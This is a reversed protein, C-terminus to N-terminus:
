FINWKSIKKKYSLMVCIFELLASLLIIQSLDQKLCLLIIFFILLYVLGLKKHYITSQKSNKKNENDQPNILFYLLFLIIFLIVINPKSIKIWKNIIPIGSLILISTIMCLLNSKLHIGGFNKRLIYFTIIFLCYYSFVNFVLVIVLAPLICMSYRIIIVISYRILEPDYSLSNKDFLSFIYKEIKKM